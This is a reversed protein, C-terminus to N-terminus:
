HLKLGEATAKQLEPGVVKADLVFSVIMTPKMAIISELDSVQKDPKVQADTTTLLKINYEDLVAKIGASELRPWDGDTTYLSVAATYGAKKSRM